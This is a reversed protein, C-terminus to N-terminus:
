RHKLLRSVNPINDDVAPKVPVRHNAEIVPCGAFYDASESIYRVDPVYSADHRPWLRPVFIQCKCRQMNIPTVKCLRDQIYMRTMPGLRYRIENVEFESRPCNYVPRSRLAVCRYKCKMKAADSKWARNIARKEATDVRRIDRRTSAAPFSVPSPFLIPFPFRPSAPLLRLLVRESPVPSGHSSAM